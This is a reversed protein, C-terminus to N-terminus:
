GLEVFVSGDEVSAKYIPLPASTPGTIAEGTKVDFIAFHGVCTITCDPNLSLRDFSYASHTCLNRFAFFEDGRRVVAVDAGDVRFGRVMGEPFEEPRGVNTRTM